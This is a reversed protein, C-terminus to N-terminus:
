RAENTNIKQYILLDVFDNGSKLWDKKMGVPEFDNSEFARCSAKNDVTSEAYISHVQITEFCYRVVLEIAKSGIGKGQYNEDILLGIGVRENKPNFDFLDICGAVVEGEFVIMFRMQGSQYLDNGNLVFEVIQERSFPAITDSVLWHKPDNEWALIAEVDDIGARRLEVM